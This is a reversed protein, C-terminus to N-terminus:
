YVCIHLIDGDFILQEQSLCKWDKGAFYEAYKEEPEIKEYNTQLYYNMAGVDSWSTVFSSVILDGTNYLDTYQAYTRAADSYFAVKTIDKGTSEKYDCIAQDIYQYRYKDLANLKYKDIYIKNFSFYQFVMVIFVSTLAIRHVFKEVFKGIEKKDNSIVMNIALIAAISAMPYVVRTAWWGSGQIISATPFIFAAIMLILANFMELARRKSLVCRMVAAAFLVFTAILFLYPPLINFTYKMNYNIGDAVGRLKAIYDIKEPIRTSQFIFRFALLNIAVPIIYCSGIAIGNLIYHKFDKAQAMAFPISLIVFLAITGQYTFTALTMAIIAFFCYKKQYSGFFKEIWYVGVVNFFIALMFGFKEIFMFYEIIYINAIAAFALLIRANEKIEYKQLILQYIWVAGGLLALASISSFYYFFMNPLGSFSYLMYVAGIIPRGNRMAMDVGAGYYGTSLTAYTDTAFSMYLNVGFFLLMLLAIKVICSRESPIRLINKM